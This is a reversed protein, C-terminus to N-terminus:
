EPVREGLELKFTRAVQELLRREQKRTRCRRRLRDAYKNRPRTRTEGYYQHAVEWFKQPWLWLPVFLQLEELPLPNRDLYTALALCVVDGDYDTFKAVRRLFNVLDHIPLDCICYDFDVLHISGEPTFLVNRESYDHHCISGVERYRSCVQEYNCQSLLELAERGQEHYRDIHRLFRRAFRSLSSEEEAIQRYKELLDLRRQWLQPWTSWLIRESVPPPEFGQARQHLKALQAAAAAVDATSEYHAERSEVWPSMVFFRGEIDIYPRGEEDLVYRDINKMGQKYLHEKAAHIFQIDAERQRSEKLAFIGQDSVVRFARRVATIEKPKIGFRLAAAMEVTM